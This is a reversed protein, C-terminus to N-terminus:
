YERNRLRHFAEMLDYALRSAFVEDMNREGKVQEHVLGQPPVGWYYRTEDKEGTDMNDGSFFAFILDATQRDYLFEEYFKRAAVNYSRTILYPQYSYFDSEDGDALEFYYHITEETIGCGPVMLHSNVTLENRTNEEQAKQAILQKAEAYLRRITAVRDAAPGQQAQMSMCAMLLSLLFFFRRM